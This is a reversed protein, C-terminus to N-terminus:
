RVGSKMMLDVVKATVGMVLVNSVLLLFVLQLAVDKLLVYSEIVSVGLPIFFFGMHKLFPQAVEEVHDLKIIKLNLTVLLLLMGIISGPITIFPKIMGSILNGIHLFAIILGLQFLYKVKM